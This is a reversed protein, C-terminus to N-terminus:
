GANFEEFLIVLVLWVTLLLGPFNLLLLYRAKGKRNRKLSWMAIVTSVFTCSVVTLTYHAVVAMAAALEQLADRIFGGTMLHLLGSWFPLPPTPPRSPPFVQLILFSSAVAYALGCSFFSVPLAGVFRKRPPLFVDILVFVAAVGSAVLFSLTTAPLISFITAYFSCFVMWLVLRRISFRPYDFVSSTSQVYGGM